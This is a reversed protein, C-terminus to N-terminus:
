TGFEFLCLKLLLLKFLVDNERFRGPSYVPMCRVRSIHGESHDWRLPIGTRPGTMLLRLRGSIVEMPM